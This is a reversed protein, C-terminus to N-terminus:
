EHVIVRTGANEATARVAHWGEPLKPGVWQFLQRADHPLMNVCGHSHEKGFSSHWFAGHLAIGKEFYMVWPVDEISYPGDTASDDDMTTAIHKERVRFNGSPTRHDKAKDEDDHRGSSVITAFVPKDGEFAVLTQTGLNVDIWKEGPKLDAPPTPARAIAADQERVFYGETTELYGKGEFTERRGTLSVIAFRAIPELRSPTDGADGFGIKLSGKLMFALPLKRPEDDHGVWIGEFETSPKHLLIHDFPVYSGRTTRWMKGAFAFVKQDIAVYFGRVMRQEVLASEGKLQDLSVQGKQVEDALYWPTEGKEAAVEKAAAARDAARDENSKNGVVLGKEYTARERRLPARRYMPTGNTLNLGYDYPLPRDVFPAHPADKLEKADFDTTVYRGCLWGGGAIQFWGESCRGGKQGTSRAAVRQGKRLSGLRVVEKKEDAARNPERPPIEPRSFIPTPSRLAAVQITGEAGADSAAFLDAADATGETAAGPESAPARDQTTRAKCGASVVFSVAAALAIRVLSSGAYPKTVV